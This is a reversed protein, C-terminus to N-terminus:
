KFRKASAKIRGLIGRYARTTDFVSGDTESCLVLNQALMEVAKIAKNKKARGFVGSGGGGWDGLGIEDNEPVAGLVSAGLARGIENPDAMEGNFVLDGRVRNIILKADLNYSKLIALVKAADKLASLHPTTVILGETAACVARHFGGDIGAPCDIICFDFGVLSGVLSKFENAGIGRKGYGNGSPLVFVGDVLDEVIAQKLRCKGNFVDCIDFVIKNEINMVVDLNNLGMDADILLVTYGMRGLTRGLTASVTTKGVGGKGSTIVISRTMYKIKICKQPLLIPTKTSNCTFKCLIIVFIPLFISTNKFFKQFFVFFAFFLILIFKFYNVLATTLTYLIQAFLNTMVLMNITEYM